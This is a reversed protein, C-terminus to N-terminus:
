TGEALIRGIDGPNQYLQCPSIDQELHVIIKWWHGVRFPVIPHALFWSLHIPVSLVTLHPRAIRGQHRDAFASRVLEAGKIM